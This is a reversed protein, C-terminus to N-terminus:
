PRPGERTLTVTLGPPKPPPATNVTAPSRQGGATVAFIEVNHGRRGLLTIENVEGAASRPPPGQAGVVNAVEPTSLGSVDRLLLVERHAPELGDIVADCAEPM